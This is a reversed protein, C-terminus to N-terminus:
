KLTNAHVYGVTPTYFLSNLFSILLIVVNSYTFGNSIFCSVTNYTKQPDDDYHFTFVPSCTTTRDVERKGFPIIRKM